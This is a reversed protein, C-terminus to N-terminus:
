VGRTLLGLFFHPWFKRRLRPATSFITAATSADGSSMTTSIPGPSPASVPFSSSSGTSTSMGAASSFSIVESFAGRIRAFITTSPLRPDSRRANAAPQRGAAPRMGEAAAGRHRLPQNFFGGIIELAAAGLDRIYAKDLFVHM